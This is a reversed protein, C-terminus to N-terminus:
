GHETAIIRVPLSNAAEPQAASSFINPEGFRCLSPTLEKWKASISLVCYKPM